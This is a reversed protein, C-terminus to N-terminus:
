RSEPAQRGGARGRLLEVPCAVGPARAIRADATIFTAHLAEALAVYSADYMTLNERLKWCRPLLAAHSARRMPLDALDTLALRARREDLRGHHLHKHLVAAVELDVLEPAALERGRLTARAQDGDPGDDALATALVSADVVLVNM